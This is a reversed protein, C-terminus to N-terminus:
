ATERAGPTGRYGAAEHVMARVNAAPVQPWLDCGPWVADAGDDIAQRVAERVAAEDGEALTGVPDINGFLIAEPGLAARSQALSNAQDVNLAEAGCEWLLKMGRNTRGCASLVRPAPLAAILRKLPPQVVRGFLAPGLMGPSGGMEHITIFDAGAARYALAVEALLDALADLPGAVEAPASMLDSLFGGRDVLYMALTAPGPVWAGVAVEQGVGAKLLGIAEIVTAVREHRVVNAPSAIHLDGLSTALPKVVTPFEPRPSDIRFDVEAGLAGAEVCIDTPVVASELGFLRYSTAAAAAMKTADTHIEGFRLGLSQLGPETVSILGSFCPRREGQRGHLLGLVEDRSNNAVEQGM